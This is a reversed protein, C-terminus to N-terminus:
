ASCRSACRTCRARSATRRSTAPSSRATTTDAGRQRRVHVRRVRPGVEYLTDKKCLGSEATILDSVADARERILAATRHLIASREYRTLQARYARAIAFARRVDDVTAKPVTGVLAGTYPNRVEITRDNGVAEGAIRMKAALPAGGKVAALETMMNM